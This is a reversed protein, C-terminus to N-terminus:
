LEDYMACGWHTHAYTHTNIPRKIMAWELLVSLRKVQREAREESSWLAVYTYLHTIMAWRSPILAERSVCEEAAYIVLWQRDQSAALCVEQHFLLLNEKASFASWLLPHCVAGNPTSHCAAGPTWEALASACCLWVEVLLPGSTLLVYPEPSPLLM